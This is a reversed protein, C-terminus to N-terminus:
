RQVWRTHTWQAPRYLNIKGIRGKTYRNEVISDFSLDM